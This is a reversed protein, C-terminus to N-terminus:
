FYHRKRKRKDFLKVVVDKLICHKINTLLFIKRLRKPMESPAVPRFMAQQEKSFHHRIVLFQKEDIFIKCSKYQQAFKLAAQCSTWVIDDQTSSEDLDFTEEYFNPEQDEDQGKVFPDERIVVFQNMVAVFIRARGSM